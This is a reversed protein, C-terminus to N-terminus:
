RKIANYISFNASFIRILHSHGMRQTPCEPCVSPYCHSCNCDTHRPNNRRTSSMFKRYAHLPYHLAGSLRQM